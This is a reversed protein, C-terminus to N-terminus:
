CEHTNKTSNIFAFLNLKILEFLTQSNTKIFLMLSLVLLLSTQYKNKSTAKSLYNFVFFAYMLISKKIENSILM